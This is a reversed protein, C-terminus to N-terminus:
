IHILSLYIESTKVAVASGGAQLLEASVGDRGLGRNRKLRAIAKETAEPGVNLCTQTVVSASGMCKIESMKAMKGGFVNCFHEQWREQRENESSTLSGDKKRVPQKMM